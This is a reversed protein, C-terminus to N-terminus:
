KSQQIKFPVTFPEKENIKGKSFNSAYLFIILLKYALSPQQFTSSFITWSCCCCCNKYVQIFLGEKFIKLKEEMSFLLQVHICCAHQSPIDEDLYSLPKTASFSFFAQSHLQGDQWLMALSILAFTVAFIHHLYTCIGLSMCSAPLLM